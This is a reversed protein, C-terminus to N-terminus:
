YYSVMDQCTTQKGRAYGAVHRSRSKNEWNFGFNRSVSEKTDREDTEREVEPPAATLPILRRSCPHPPIVCCGDSVRVAEIREQRYARRHHSSHTVLHPLPTIPDRWWLWPGTVLDWGSKKKKKEGVKYNRVDCFGTKELYSQIVLRSIRRKEEREMELCRDASTLSFSTVPTIMWHQYFGSQRTLERQPPYPPIFLQQYNLCGPTLCLTRRVVARMM